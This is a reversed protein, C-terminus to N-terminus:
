ILYISMMNLFYYGIYDHYNHNKLIAYINKCRKSADDSKVKKIFEKEKSEELPIEM